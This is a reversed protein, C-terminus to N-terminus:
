SNWRLLNYVITKLYDVNLGLRRLDNMVNQIENTMFIQELAPKSVKLILYLHAFDNGDNIYRNILANMEDYNIENRIEDEFTTLSFQEFIIRDLQLSSQHITIIDQFLNEVIEEIDVGHTQMWEVINDVDESQAVINWASKFTDSKLYKILAQINPDNEWYERVIETIRQFNIVNQFQDIENRLTPTPYSNIVIVQVAIVLLFRISNM